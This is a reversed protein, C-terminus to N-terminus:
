LRSKSGLSSPAEEKSARDIIGREWQARRRALIGEVFDDEDHIDMNMEFVSSSVGKDALAKAAGAAAQQAWKDAKKQGAHIKVSEMEIWLCSGGNEGNQISMCVLRGGEFGLAEMFRALPSGMSKPGAHEIISGDARLAKMWKEADMKTETEMEVAPIIERVQCEVVWTSGISKGVGQLALLAVCPELADWDVAVAMADKGM